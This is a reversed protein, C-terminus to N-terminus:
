SRHQELALDVAQVFEVGFDAANARMGFPPTKSNLLPKQNPDSDRIM